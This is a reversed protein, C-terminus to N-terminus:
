YPQWTSHMVKFSISVQTWIYEKDKQSKMSYNFWIIGLWIIVTVSYKEHSIDSRLADVCQLIKAEMVGNYGNYLM